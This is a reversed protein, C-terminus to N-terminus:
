ANAYGLAVGADVPDFALPLAVLGSAFIHDQTVFKQAALVTRKPDYASDEVQLVLAQITGLKIQTKSV